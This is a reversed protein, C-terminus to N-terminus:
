NNDFLFDQILKNIQKNNENCIELDKNLLTYFVLTNNHHRLRSDATLDFM